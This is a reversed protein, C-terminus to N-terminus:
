RHHSLAPAMRSCSNSNFTPAQGACIVAPAAETQPTLSVAITITCPIRRRIHLAPQGAACGAAVVRLLLRATRLM